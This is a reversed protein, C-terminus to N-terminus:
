NNELWQLVKQEPGSAPLVPSTLYDKSLDTSRVSLNILYNEYTSYASQYLFRKTSLSGKVQVSDQLLLNGPSYVEGRLLVHKNLAIMPKLESDQQEFVFVLGNMESGSGIRILAHSNEKSQQFRVLGLVSPYLFHCNMGTSISDRAFFQGNGSFGPRFIMAPADIIINKCHFSSDIVLTTDSHVRVNGTLNLNSLTFAKKGLNIVLTKQLYSRFINKKVFVNLTGAEAELQTHLHDLLIIKLAPLKKGSNYIHGKVFKRDGTYARNDVFAARIGSKPLFANGNIETQGSVSLPRDEDALHVSSWKTSDLKNAIMLVKYLTDKQIIAKAIGVTFVGWTKKELLVSDNGLGFLDMRRVTYVSDGGNLLLNIGSNLNNELRQSRTKIQAQMRFFYAATIMTVCFIAIVLAMIVVIYLASAAMKKQFFLGPIM